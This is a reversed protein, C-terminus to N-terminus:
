HLHIISNYNGNQCHTYNYGAVCICHYGGIQDVCTGGNSCPFSECENLEVYFMYTLKIDVSCLTQVMRATPGMIALLAFATINMSKISAHVVMPVHIAKVNM